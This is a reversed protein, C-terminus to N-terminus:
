GGLLAQKLEEVTHFVADAGAQLLADERACGWTVAATALGVSRAAEIDRVEDGVSLMTGPPLRTLKVLRRFHRAKGFLSASCAFHTVHAASTGLVQRITTERNSSVVAVTIGAAALAALLEAVGPFLAFRGAAAAEASRRGLDRAIFPVRWRRIGLAQMIEGSTQHRLTEVEAASVQRFRHRQAMENLMGFFWPMTDALTGDFDFAALRYPPM